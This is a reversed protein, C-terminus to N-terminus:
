RSSHVSLNKHVFVMVEEVSIQHVSQHDHHRLKFLPQHLYAPKDSSSLVHINDKYLPMLQEPSTSTFIGISPVDQSVAIHLPGSDNGIFLKSRKILAAMQAISTQGVANCINPKKVAHELEKAAFIESRDGLLIIRASYRSTITDILRAFKNLPWMKFERHHRAGPHVTIIIENQSINNSKLFTDAFSLAREPVSIHIDNYTCMIGLKRLLNLNQELIYTDYKFESKITNLFGAGKYEFGARLPTGIMFAMVSAEILSNGRNSNYILDFGEHKLSRFFLIKELIKIHRGKPEYRFKKSIINPYPFLYFLEDGFETLTSIAASPFADQLLKIVPFILLVDGIGGLQFILIKKINEKHLTKRFFPALLVGFFFLLRLIPRKFFEKM